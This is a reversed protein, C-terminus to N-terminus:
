SLYCMICLSTATTAITPYFWPDAILPLCGDISRDGSGFPYWVVHLYVNEHEYIGSSQSLMRSRIITEAKTLVSIAPSQKKLAVVPWKFVFFLAVKLM